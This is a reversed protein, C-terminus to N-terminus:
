WTNELDDFSALMVTEFDSINIELNNYTNDEPLFTQPNTTSEVRNISILATIIMIGLCPVVARWLVHSWVAFPNEVRWNRILAMIRNEFKYPVNENVPMNRAFRLFREDAINTERHHLERIDDMIRGKIDETVRENAPIAKALEILKKEIESTNM